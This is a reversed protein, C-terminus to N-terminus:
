NPLSNLFKKQCTYDFSTDVDVFGTKVLHNNVFKITLVRTSDECYDYGYRRVVQDFALRIIRKIEAPTYEEDDDNVQINVDFDFGVNSKADYTIMNRNSSGIFCYSFTFHNRVIDQVEHIIDLLEKKVEKAENKSVYRFDHQM